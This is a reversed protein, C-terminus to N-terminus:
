RNDAMNEYRVSRDGKRFEIEGYKNSYLSYGHKRALVFLELLPLDPSLLVRVKGNDSPSESKCM